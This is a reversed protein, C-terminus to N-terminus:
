IGYKEYATMDTGGNGHLVFPHTGTVLNVFQGDQEGFEGPTHFAVSQFIECGSDLSLNYENSLFRHTHWLQDDDSFRIPHEKVMRLFTKRPMTWQGANVFRWPSQYDSPYQPALSADPWCNKETSLYGYDTSTIWINGPYQRIFISDYGDIYFIIDAESQRAHDAVAHVKTGWGRWPATIVTLPWGHRDASRKLRDLGPHHGASAITLIEITPATM